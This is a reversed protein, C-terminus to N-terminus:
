ETVGILGIEPYSSSAATTTFGTIKSGWLWNFKSTDLPIYAVEEGLVVDAEQLFSTQEEVTASNAAQDVLSEFEDSEYCGYDQGCTTPSFNPRSDFLPPLVTMMSPWDAGWGAWSVDFDDDPRSIVDYYTDGQGELTVDFGAADWGEKIVAMAKDATPSAPYALKIPYPMEVGAEELLAKAAEPDGSNDGDFAPNPQYGSVSPNVISEAPAAAKDGGLAKVYGDLDLAVALAQRVKVDKLRNFNPTLYQTYPSEVNLYRDLVPGELQAFQSPVVRATTIANQVDPADTILRDNFLEGSTESPDIQYDIQDPLALRLTEPDDTAPDYEPNRVLTAGKNKEWVGGEVKYPGNSLVKWQSKAGEDFSEKYPDTMMMGAIAQPFDAWPKNFRFTITKGDCSVAEEFAQQQAPTAKYPGPYDEVDIYSLTYNPGGTILDNAFVRSTGYQVDECTIDTGDEWKVGDKLTFSWVRGEESSTGTDTALDPVPTTAEEPDESMPFALLGRYILRRYWALQVGYYIRQPDSAEYPFHQLVKLTGGATSTESEPGEDTTGDGGCAAMLSLGLVAAASAAVSRRLKIGM